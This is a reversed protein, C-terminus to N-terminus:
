DFAQSDAVNFSPKPDYIPLRLRKFLFLCSVILLALMPIALYFFLTFASFATIVALLAGAKTLARPPRLDTGLKEDLEKYSRYEFYTYLGWTVITILPLFVLMSIGGFFPNLITPPIRIWLSSSAFLWLSFSAFFAGCYLVAHETNKMGLLKWGKARRIISVVYILVALTWLPSIYILIISPVLILMAIASLLFGDRLCQFADRVASIQETQGELLNARKSIQARSPNRALLALVFSLTPLLLKSIFGPISFIQQMNGMLGFVLILIAGVLRVRRSLLVLLSGLITLTGFVMLFVGYVGVPGHAPWGAYYYDFGTTVILLGAAIGLVFSAFAYHKDNPVNRNSGSTGETALSCEM